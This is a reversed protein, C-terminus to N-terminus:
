AAECTAIIADVKAIGEEDLEPYDAARLALATDYVSRVMADGYTTVGDYEVYPRVVLDEMYNAKTGPMGIIVGTFDVRYETEAYVKDIGDVANYSVGSVKTVDSDKTFANADIGAKELLSARTVIFGYEATKADAKVSKAVSAKFRIGENADTRISNEKFSKITTTDPSYFLKLNDIYVKGEVTGEADEAHVLYVGFAVSKVVNAIDSTATRTMPTMTDYDYAVGDKVLISTKVNAKEGVPMAKFGGSFAGGTRDLAYGYYQVEEIEPNEEVFLEATFTYIGDNFQTAEWGGSTADAAGKFSKVGVQFHDAAGANRASELVLDIDKGANAKLYELNTSKNASIYSILRQQGTVFSYTNPSGSTVLDSDSMIGFNQIEQEASSDTVNNFHLTFVHEGANFYDNEAPYFNEDWVAYLTQYKTVDVSAVAEGDPTTAWGEFRTTGFNAMKEYAKVDQTPSSGVPVVVDMPVEGDGGNANFTITYEKDTPAQYYLKIDDFSCTTTGASLAFYVQSPVSSTLGNCTVVGDNDVSFNYTKKTWVGTTYNGSNTDERCDSGGFAFTYVGTGTVSDIRFQFELTYNGAPFKASQTEIRWRAWNGASTFKLIGDAVSANSGARFTFGDLASPAVNVAALGYNKINHATNLTANVDNWEANDFTFHYLINEEVEMWVAYLKQVKTVDISTVVEGDATTSWGLFKLTASSELEYSSLDQVRESGAPIVVDDPVAVDKGNADFTLTIDNFTTTFPKYYVKIYGISWSTAHGKAALSVYDFNGTTTENGNYTVIRKGEEDINVTFTSTMETWSTGVTVDGYQNDNVSDNITYTYTSSAAAKVYTKFTYDGEPFKASGPRLYWRHWSAAEPSFTLYNDTISPNSGDRFSLYAGDFDDPANAGGNVDLSDMSLSTNQPVDDTTLKSFDINYILNEEAVPTYYLKLDDFHWTSNAVSTPISIMRLASTNQIAGGYVAFGDSGVEFDYSLTTWAGSAISSAGQQTGGDFCLGFSNTATDSYVKLEVTYSGAPWNSAKVLRPRKWAGAVVKVANTANGEYDSEVGNVGTIRMNMDDFLVSANNIAALSNDKINHQADDNITDSTWDDFTFHYVLSSEDAMVEASAEVEAPVVEGAEEGSEVTGVMVPAALVTNALVMMIALVFVLFKKM